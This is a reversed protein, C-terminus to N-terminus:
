LRRTLQERIAATYTRGIRLETGDNLVAALSSFRGPRIREVADTRVLTSRHIRLFEGPPLLKEIATLNEHHLYDQGNAHIRVYDREAQVHTIASPLIRVFDGRTKVWLEGKHTERALSKQRLAAIVEELEGIRELSSKMTAAQRARELAALLRGPEIPKTVYDVANADFARLAQDDFATIFVLAPAPAKLQRVVDFGTGDPMHIDLLLIDPQFRSCRALADQVNAAEEIGAIWPISRLHRVIRGRALPEDDVVLVRLATM